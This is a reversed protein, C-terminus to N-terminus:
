INLSTQKKIQKFQPDKVHEPWQPNDLFTKTHDSMTNPEPVFEM